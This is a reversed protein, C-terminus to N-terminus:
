REKLQDAHVGLRDLNVARGLKDFEDKVARVVTSMELRPPEGPRVSQLCANFVASRIHGGALPVHEALLDLDLDSVDVGTPLVLRWIRRREDAGPLPFQVVYRLRRMFAEDLDKKRNSALVAMGTFREMRELLYSIELNAYRDHADKVETRRGFLADAEDFFLIVDAADAADFLRRLNKETEGIYKDVVQSLDIRHIPMDVARAIAEAAMTKGTGPPGSFLVSLGSENWARATGWEHHVATLSEAATVLEGLQQTQRVPLMLEDLDFRPVVPQALDGLDLDARCADFLDRRAPVHGLARVAAAVRAITAGENRFRRACETLAGRGDGDAWMTPLEERWRTLREHYGLRELRVRPVTAQRPLQAVADGEEAGVFVVIPLRSLQPPRDEGAVAPFPLFVAAGRLWATVLLPGLTVPDAGRVQVLPMGLEAAIRAATQARPSGPPGVVPVLSPRDQSRTRLRAVALEHAATTGDWPMVPELAAPGPGGPFLLQRGVAPAVELPSHWSTPPPDLLGHVSLPSGLDLLELVDAPRDWLRQLLALTPREAAPDNLCAAVVPGRASDLVGGLALALAFRDVDTLALEAAVWGFGGRQPTGAPPAPVALQESLWRATVDEDFFTRRDTDWRQLDLSERLPDAPLPLTGSSTGREHWLWAVERRLALTVQGLWHAAVADDVALQPQFGPPTRRTGAATSM